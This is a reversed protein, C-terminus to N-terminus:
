FFTGTLRSTCSLTPNLSGVTWSTVGCSNILSAGSFFTIPKKAVTVAYITTDM